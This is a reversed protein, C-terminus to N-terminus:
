ATKAILLIDKRCQSLWKGSIILIAVSESILIGHIFIRSATALFYMCNDFM